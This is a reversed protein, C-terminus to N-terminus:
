RSMVSFTINTKMNGLYIPALRLTQVLQRLLISPQIDEHKIDSRIDIRTVSDGGHVTVVQSNPTIGSFKVQM